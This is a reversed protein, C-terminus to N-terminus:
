AAVALDPQTTTESDSIECKVIVKAISKESWRFPHASTNWESIFAELRQSLAKKEQFDAIKLRKRQLIRAGNNL